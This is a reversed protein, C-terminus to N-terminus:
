KHFKLIGCLWKIFAITVRESLRLIPQNSSNKYSIFHEMIHNIDYTKKLELYQKNVLNLYEEETAHYIEKIFGDIECEGGTGGLNVIDQYFYGYGRCEYTYSGVPLALVGHNAADILTTGMGIFLKANELYIPLEKYSKTGHWTIANRINDDAKEITHMLENRDPGDGIIDLYLNPYQQKLKTFIRILGIMYGKFPFDLRGITLIHFDDFKYKKTAIDDSYENIYMPLPVISANEMSIGYDNELRNRCLPDMHIVMNQKVLRQALSKGWGHAIFKLMRSKFWFELILGYQHPVYFITTIQLAKNRRKIEEAIIFEPYSFVMIKSPHNTQFYIKEWDSSKAKQKFPLYNIVCGTEEIEELLEQKIEKQNDTILMTHYEQQNLWHLMRILLTEIGGYNHMYAIFIFNEKM